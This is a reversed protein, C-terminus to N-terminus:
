VGPHICEPRGRTVGHVDSGDEREKIYCLTRDGSEARCSVAVQEHQGPAGAAVRCERQDLGGDRNANVMYTWVAPERSCLDGLAVSGCSVRTRSRRSSRMAAQLVRSAILGM